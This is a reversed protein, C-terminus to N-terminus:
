LSPGNGIELVEVGDAAANTGEFSGKYVVSVPMDPRLGKEFYVPVNIISFTVSEGSSNKVVITNMTLDELSGELVQEQDPTSGSKTDEGDQATEEETEPQSETESQSETDSPNETDSTDETDSPNETDELNETGAQTSEADAEGVAVMDASGAIRVATATQTGKATIKGTYDIAVMNGIRIGGPFDIQADKTSFFLENGNDSLVLIRSVTLEELMGIVTHTRQEEKEKKTEAETEAAATETETEPAATEAAATETETVATEDASTKRCGSLCLLAFALAMVAIMRKRM